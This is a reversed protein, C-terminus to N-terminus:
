PGGWILPLAVRPADDERLDGASAREHWGIKVVIPAGGSADCDWRLSKRSADWPQADRCVKVRGGPFSAALARSIDHVDFAALQEPDCGAAGFCQAPPAPPQGGDGADFEFLYAGAASPNANLREGLTAGLRVAATMLDSDHRMRLAVAQTAAAGLVGTALVFMAVLVEILSYGGCRM